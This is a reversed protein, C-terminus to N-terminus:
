SNFSTLNWRNGDVNKTVCGPSDYGENMCCSWAYYEETETKKKIVFLQWIGTHSHRVKIKERLTQTLNAKFPKAPESTQIM